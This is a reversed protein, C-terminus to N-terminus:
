FTGCDALEEFAVSHRNANWSMLARSRRRWGKTLAEELGPCLSIRSVSSIRGDILRSWGWCDPRREDAEVCIGHGRYAAERSSNVRGTRQSVDILRRHQGGGQKAHDPLMTELSICNKWARCRAHRAM